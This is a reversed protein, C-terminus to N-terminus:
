TEINCTRALLCVGNNATEQDGYFCSRPKREANGFQEVADLHRRQRDAQERDALREVDGRAAM